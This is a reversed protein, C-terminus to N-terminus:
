RYSCSRSIIITQAWAMEGKRIRLSYVGSPFAHLDWITQAAQNTQRSALTRGMLDTLEILDPADGHWDLYLSGETPNPYVQWYAPIKQSASTSM